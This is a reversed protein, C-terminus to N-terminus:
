LIIWRHIWLVAMGTGIIFITNKSLVAVLAAVIAGFIRGNEISLDVSGHQIFIAPLILASLVAPPVFRLLRSIIDPLTKDQLLHIFSIRTLFTGLGAVVLLLWLINHEM